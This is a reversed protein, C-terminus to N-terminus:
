TTFVLNGNENFLYKSTIRKPHVIIISSQDPIPCVLKIDGYNLDATVFNIDDIETIHLYQGSILVIFDFGKQNSISTMHQPTWQIITDHILTGNATYVYLNNEENLNVGVIVICAWTPTFCILEPKSCTSITRILKKSDISYLSVVGNQTGVLLMRYNKSLHICVINSSYVSIVSIIRVTDEVSFIYVMNAINTISFYNESVSYHQVQFDFGFIPVIPKSEFSHVKFRSDQDIFVFFSKNCFLISDVQYELQKIVETKLTNSTLQKTPSKHAIHLNKTQDHSYISFCSSEVSVYCPKFLDCNLQYDNFFENKKPKDRKEHNKMFLTSPITGLFEMEALISSEEEYSNNQWIDEYLENKYYQIGNTKSIRNYPGWILDIWDNINNSVDDSELVKRMKYVFDFPSHAWIPIIVDNVPTNKNIGLDFRNNNTLFEPFYYFEPTLERYDNIQSSCMRYASSVSSFQRSPDDFRGSNILIQRSAFPEVRLLYLFLSMPSSCYSSFLFHQGLTYKATEAKEILQQLRKQDIEGMTKSLDRRKQSFSDDSYDDIIWPFIPYQSPDNFSRGSYLNLLTLYDFNTIENNKWKKTWDGSEFSFRFDNRKLNIMSLNYTKKISRIIEFSDKSLCDIFFSKGNIMMIEMGRYIQFRKKQNISTIRKPDMQVLKCESAIDLYIMLKSLYLTSKYNNKPSILEVAYGNQLFDKFAIKKLEYIYKNSEDIRLFDTNPFIEGTDRLRSASEHINFHYNPTLIQPIQTIKKTSSYSFLNSRKYYQTGLEGPVWKYPSGNKEMLKLYLEWNLLEDCGNEQVFKFNSDGDMIRNNHEIFCKLSNELSFYDKMQEKTSLFDNMVVSDNNKKEFLYSNFSAKLLINEDSLIGPKKWSIKKNKINKEFHYFCSSEIQSKKFNSAILQIFTKNNQDLVDSLVCFFMEPSKDLWSSLHDIVYYFEDWEKFNCKIMFKLIREFLNRNEITNLDFYKFCGYILWFYWYKCKFEIVNDINIFYYFSDLFIGCQHCIFTVIPFFVSSKGSIKRFYSELLLLDYKREKILQIFYQYLEPCISLASYLVKVEQIYDEELYDRGISFNLGYIIRKIIRFYRKNNINLFHFYQRDITDINVRSLVEKNLLIRQFILSYYVDTEQRNIFSVVIEILQSNVNEMMSLQKGIICIFRRLYSKKENTDDDLFFNIILKQLEISTHSNLLALLVHLNERIELNMLIENDKWFSFKIQIIKMLKLQVENYDLESINHPKHLLYYIIKYIYEASNEKLSNTSYIMIQDLLHTLHSTNQCLSLLDLLQIGFGIQCNTSQTNMNEFLSIFEENLENICFPKEEKVMCLFSYILKNYTQYDKTNKLVSCFYKVCETIGEIDKCCKYFKVVKSFSSVFSKVFDIIKFDVYDKSLIGLLYKNMQCSSGLSQIIGWLKGLQDAINPHHSLLLKEIFQQSIEVSISSQKKLLVFLSSIVINGLKNRCFSDFLYEHKMIGDLIQVYEQYEQINKIFSKFSDSYKDIYLRLVFYKISLLDKGNQSTSTIFIKHCSFAKEINFDIKPLNKLIYLMPLILQLRSTEWSDNKILNNAYLEFKSTNNKLVGILHDLIDKIPNLVEFGNEYENDFEPENFCLNINISMMNKPREFDFLRIVNFTKLEKCKLLLFGYISDFVVKQGILPDEDLLSILFHPYNASNKVYKIILNQETISDHMQKKLYDWLRSLTEESIYGNKIISEVLFPDKKAIYQEGFDTLAQYLYFEACYKRIKKSTESNSEKCFIDKYLICENFKRSLMGNIHFIAAYLCYLYLFEDKEQFDGIIPNREMIIQTQRIVEDNNNSIQEYNEFFDFLLQHGCMESSNRCTDFLQDHIITLVLDNSKNQM